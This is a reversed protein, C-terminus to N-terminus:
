LHKVEGDRVTMRWARYLRVRERQRFATDRIFASLPVELRSAVTVLGRTTLRQWGCDLAYAYAYPVELRQALGALTIGKQLCVARIDAGVLLPDLGAVDARNLANRMEDFFTSGPVAEMMMATVDDGWLAVARRHLTQADDAM